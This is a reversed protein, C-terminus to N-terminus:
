LSLSLQLRETHAASELSLSLVERQQSDGIPWAHRSEGIPWAHASDGLRWDALRASLRALAPLATCVATGPVVAEAGPPGCLSWTEPTCCVLELEGLKGLRDLHRTDPRVCVLELDRTYLVCAGVRRAPWAPRSAAGGKYCVCDGQVIVWPWGAFCLGVYTPTAPHGACAPPPPASGFGSVQLRALAAGCTGAGCTGAGCTGAGCTGAGCTGAGCTGARCRGPRLENSPPIRLCHLTGAISASRLQHWGRDCSTGVETAAPALRRRLGHWGRDHQDDCSTGAETVAPQTASARLPSPACSRAVRPTPSCERDRANRYEFSAAGLARRPPPKGGSVSVSQASARGSM